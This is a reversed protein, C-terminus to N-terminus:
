LPVHKYILLTFSINWDTTQLTWSLLKKSPRAVNKSQTNLHAMCCQLTYVDSSKHPLAHCGNFMMNKMTDSSIFKVM